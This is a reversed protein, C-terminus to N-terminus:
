KTPLLKQSDSAVASTITGQSCHLVIQGTFREFRLQDLTILLQAMFDLKDGRLNLLEFTRERTIREVTPTNTIDIM